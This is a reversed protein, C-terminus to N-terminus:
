QVSHYGVRLRRRSHFVHECPGSRSSAEYPLYILNAVGLAIIVRITIQMGLVRRRLDSNLLARAHIVRDVLLLVGLLHV